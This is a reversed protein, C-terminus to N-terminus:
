NRPVQSFPAVKLGGYACTRSRGLFGAVLRGWNVSNPQMDIEETITTTYSAALKRPLHSGWIIPVLGMVGGGTFMTLSPDFSLEVVPNEIEKLHVKETDLQGKRRNTSGSRVSEFSELNGIVYALLLFLETIVALLQISPMGSHISKPIWDIVQGRTIGALSKVWRSSRNSM